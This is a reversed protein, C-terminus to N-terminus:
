VCRITGGIKIQLPDTPDDVNTDYSIGAGGTMTARVRVSQLDPSIQVGAGNIPSVLGMGNVYGKINPPLYGPRGPIETRGYITLSGGPGLWSYDAATVTYSQPLGTGPFRCTGKTGKIEMTLFPANGYLLLHVEM